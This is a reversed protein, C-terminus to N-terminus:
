FCHWNHGLKIEQFNSYQPILTNNLSNLSIYSKGISIFTYKEFENKQETMSIM